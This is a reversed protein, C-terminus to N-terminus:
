RAIKESRPWGLARMRTLVGCAVTAEAWDNRGLNPLAAVSRFLRLWHSSSKIPPVHALLTWVLLTDIVFKSRFFTNELWGQRHDGSEKKWWRRGFEKVPRVTRNREKCGRRRASQSASSIPPVVVEAGRAEASEHIPGTDRAADARVTRVPCPVDEIIAVGTAGDGVTSDTLVQAVSEGTADALRGHPKSRWIPSSPRRVDAGSQGPQGHMSLARHSGIKLSAM